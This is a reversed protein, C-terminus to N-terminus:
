KSVYKNQKFGELFEDMRRRISLFANRHCFEEFGDEDLKGKNDIMKDIRPRASTGLDMLVLNKAFTDRAAAIDLERLAKPMMKGNTAKWDKMVQDPYTVFMHLFTEFSAYLQYIGEVAKPGVGHIGKINDGADGLICKGEIFQEADIFGTTKCFEKHTLWRNNISDHWVVNDGTVLQQWDKDATMVTVKGKDKLANTLIGALDDAEMNTGWMQRVGLLELGKLIEKKQEYYDERAQVDKETKVRNAKYETYIDKRWSKGDWLVIVNANPNEAVIRQVKNIVSFIGQTDREGASLRPNGM